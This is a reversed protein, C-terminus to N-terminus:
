SVSSDDLFQAIPSLLTSMIDDHCLCLECAQENSYLEKLVETVLTAGEYTGAVVGTKTMMGTVVDTQTVVCTQTRVGPLVGTQTVLGLAVSTHTVVHHLM